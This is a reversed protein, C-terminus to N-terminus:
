NPRRTSRELGDIKQACRLIQAEYENKIDTRVSRRHLMFYILPIYGCTAVLLIWRLPVPFPNSLIDFFALACYGLVLLFMGGFWMLWLNGVQENYKHLMTDPVFTRAHTEIIPALFLSLGGLTVYSWVWDKFSIWDVYTICIDLILVALVILGLFGWLRTTSRDFGELYENREDVLRNKEMKCANIEYELRKKTGHILNSQTDPRGINSDLTYYEQSLTGLERELEKVIVREEEILTKLIAAQISSDNTNFSVSIKPTVGIIKIEAESIETIICAQNLLTPDTIYSYPIYCYGNDGFRTGWSNRVIFVKEKDSYGCIVMAHNGEDTNAREEDTPRPVFGTSSSLQEFIRLSIIIPYGQSIASKMDELRCNVNLAKTIKRSKADEIAEESAPISSDTSYPHLEELCIGDEGMGKVMDYISTGESEAQQEDTIRKRANQYAFLESLDIEKKQERKVFYEYVSVVAFATCSGLQGQDKIRTFNERLDAEAPLKKTVPTYTEELPREINKPMIRYEQHDFMFGDKTLRKSVDKQREKDAELRKVVEEQKRIYSTGTKIRTKLKKIKNIHEKATMVREGKDPSLVAYDQIPQEESDLAEEDMEALSNNANIFLDLLENRCEDIILQEHDYQVGELLVDDEGLIQALTARKEPLSLTEDNIYELCQEKVSAIANKIIPDLDAMIDGDSMKREDIRPRVEKAYIKSFIGVNSSLVHQAIKSVKNIDVSDQTINERDLIHLYAKRLMYQVFYFRDFHLVSLGMGMIPHGQKTQAIMPAPFINNYNSTTALAYEGILQAYSDHDLNLAIGRENYNQMLILCQLTRYQGSAKIEVIEKLIQQSTQKFEDHRVALTNEDEIDLSALDQSILIFDVKYKAQTAEMANLMWHAAQWYEANYLPLHICVHLYGDGPNDLNVTREFLRRFHSLLLENAKEGTIPESVPTLVVAYSDEIGSIFKNKDTEQQEASYFRGDAGWTMLQLYDSASKGNAESYEDGYKIAFQKIRSVNQGASEGLLIHLNHVM